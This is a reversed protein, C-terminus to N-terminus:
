EFLDEVCEGIYLTVVHNQEGAHVTVKQESISTMQYWIQGEEWHMNIVIGGKLRLGHVKGNKWEEPVAPLLYIDQGRKQVLTEVIGACFGFNGDIQFPPHSDYLNEKLSKELFLRISEGVNRRDELRAFMCILWARSWGTHGGGNDLRVQLTKRAAELLEPADAHIQNGPYLGFLHSIHRHGRETEEYEQYWEQIRGDETLTVPPLHKLIASAMDAVEGTKGTYEIGELQEMGELYDTCLEWLIQNDMTPAMTISAIQGDETRYTNEPSVSPGSMWRGDASRYLYDYFFRINEELVPLVESKLFEQDMTYQYHEYLHLSLWAEGMPWMYATAPLGEIDSNGYCDTNHHAVSGRCGYIDRATSKGNEVVKKMLKVFPKFCESLGCSDVMWYNMQLNINITYKSEWSPTYGGNWIGQLNAPLNCQYSCSILLYKGFAFLIQTLYRNVAEESTRQILENMPIHSYDKEELELDTRSYLQSYEKRHEEQIQEYTAEGAQELREICIAQPDDQAFNTECDFYLVVETADWVALYDGIQSTIGDHEGIILSSYYEVGDGCQGKLYISDKGNGGSYQEFPRRNVNCQFRLKDTGHAKFKMAIVQYKASVFFERTYVTNGIEYSVQTVAQDLDLQRRYNKVEEHSHSFLFNLDCAMQYPGIYKPTGTMAMQCLFQADEVKGEMLRERIKDIYQRSQMNKRNREMGHWMSEENITVRENGIKGWISAGLRGNGIPLAVEWEVAPKDLWYTYRM